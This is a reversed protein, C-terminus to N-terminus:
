GLPQAAFFCVPYDFSSRRALERRESPLTGRATQRCHRLLSERKRKTGQPTGWGEARSERKGQPRCRRVRSSVHSRFSPQATCPRLESQSPPSPTFKSARTQM